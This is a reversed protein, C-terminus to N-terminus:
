YNTMLISQSNAVLTLFILGLLFSNWYSTYRGSMSQISSDAERPPDPRPTGPGPPSRWPPHRIQPSTEDLPHHHRSGPPDDWCASLCVGRGGQPCVCAQDPPTDPRPTWPPHRSGPPRTQPTTTDAGPPPTMGAHVSASM